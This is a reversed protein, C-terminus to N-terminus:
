KLLKSITACAAPPTIDIVPVLSVGGILDPTVHPSVPVPMCRAMPIRPAYMWRWFVPSPCSTSTEICSAIAL